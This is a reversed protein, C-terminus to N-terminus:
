ILAFGTFTSRHHLEFWHQQFTLQVQSRDLEKLALQPCHHNQHYRILLLSKKHSFYVQITYIATTTWGSHESQPTLEKHIM